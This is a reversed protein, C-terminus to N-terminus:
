VILDWNTLTQFQHAIALLENMPLVSAIQCTMGDQYWQLVHNGADDQFIQGQSTGILIHQTASSSFVLNAPQEYVSIDQGTIRYDAAFAIFTHADSADTIIGFEVSRTSVPLKQPLLPRVGASKIALLAVSSADIQEFSTATQWAQKGVTLMVESLPPPIPCAGVMTFLVFLVAVMTLVSRLLPRSRSVPVITHLQQQIDAPRRNQEDMAVTRSLPALADSLKAAVHLLEDDEDIPAHEGTVIADLKEFWADDYGDKRKNM